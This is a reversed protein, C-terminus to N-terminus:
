ERWARLQIALQFLARGSSSTDLEWIMGNDKRSVKRQQCPTTLGKFGSNFGM